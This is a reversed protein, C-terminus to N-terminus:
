PNLREFLPQWGPQSSLWFLLLALLLLITAVALMFGVGMKVGRWFPTELEQEPARAQRPVAVMARRIAQAERLWLAAEPLKEPAPAPMVAITEPPAPRSPAEPQPATVTPTAAPQESVPAPPLCYPCETLAVSVEGRCQPCVWRM